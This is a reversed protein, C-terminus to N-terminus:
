CRGESVSVSLDHEELVAGGGETPIGIGGEPAVSQTIHMCYAADTDTEPSSGTIEYDDSDGVAEVRPGVTSDSNAVADDLADEVAGSYGGFSAKTHPEQELAEAATHVADRLEDGSLSARNQMVLVFGAVAVLSAVILVVGVPNGPNYTYHNTGWRSRVFVPEHDDDDHTM